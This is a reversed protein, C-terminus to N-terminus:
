KGYLAEDSLDLKSSAVSIVEEEEEEEEEDDDDDDVPIPLPSKRKKANIISSSTKAYLRMLEEKVAVMEPDDDKFKMKVEYFAMKKEVLSIEEMLTTSHKHQIVIVKKSDPQILDKDPLAGRILRRVSKSAFTKAKHAAVDQLTKVNTDYMDQQSRPKFPNADDPCDSAGGLYVFVLWQTPFWNQDFNAPDLINSAKMCEGKIYEKRAFENDV